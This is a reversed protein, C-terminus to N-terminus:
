ARVLRIDVERDVYTWEATRRLADVLEEFAKAQAPAYEFWTLFDFPGSLDRCHYLSRAIAPLYALGTQIHQSQGELIARREDQPLTWWTNAKRIPILAACTAEPRGLGAQVATLAEQEARETYRLHSAVGQLAWGARDSAPMAGSWIQLHSVWGLPEGAVPQLSTVKWQGYEGGVFTSLTTAM